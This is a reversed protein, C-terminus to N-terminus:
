GQPIGKSEKEKVTVIRIPQLNRNQQERNEM